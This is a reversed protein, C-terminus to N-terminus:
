PLDGFNKLGRRLLYGRLGRRARVLLAELASVTLGLHYASEPGDVEAFYYLALATRQRSPLQAMAELLLRRRQGAAATDAGDPAPDAPDGAEDLPALPRRRRRDICLNVVVRYLWTSFRAEGGSRWGAAVAWVKLFAEQVVDDADQANGSIRQALALAPRAHREMLRRFAGRDGAAIATLLADDNEQDNRDM